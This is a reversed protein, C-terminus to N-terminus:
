RVLSEIVKQQDVKDQGAKTLSPGLLHYKLTEHDDPLNEHGSSDVRPISALEPPCVTLSTQGLTNDGGSQQMIQELLRGNLALDPLRDPTANQLLPPVQIM